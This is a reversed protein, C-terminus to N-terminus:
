VYLQIYMYIYIHIYVQYWFFPLAQVHQVAEMLLASRVSNNDNSQWANWSKLQISRSGAPQTMNTVACAQNM